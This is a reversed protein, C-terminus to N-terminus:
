ITDQFLTVIGFNQGFPCIFCAFQVKNTPNLEINIFKYSYLTKNM